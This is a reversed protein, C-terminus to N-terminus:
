VWNAKKCEIQQALLTECDINTRRKNACYKKGAVCRKRTFGTNLTTRAVIQQRQLLHLPLIWIGSSYELCWSGTATAAQWRRWSIIWREIEAVGEVLDLTNTWFLGRSIKKKLKLAFIDGTSFSCRQIGQVTNVFILCPFLQNLDSLGSPYEAFYAFPELEDASTWGPESVSYELSIITSRTTYHSINFEWTLNNEPGDQARPPKEATAVVSSCCVSRRGGSWWRPRWWRGRWRRRRSSCPRRWGLWGWQGGQGPWKTLMRNSVFHQLFKQLKTLKDQVRGIVEEALIVSM